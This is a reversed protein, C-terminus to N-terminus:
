DGFFYNGQYDQPYLSGTYFPGGIVASGNSHDYTYFPPTVSSPALALCQAQNQFTPEPGNGEYCPWGFNSTRTGHDVEEWTHEGVDGFFVEQTTPELAFGFPNRVGSFWVRSRWDNTGDYYPNDSPASGDTKIRLMKGNPSDLDQARLSLDNGDGGDGVGAYLTGDSSFHLSGLTHTGSDAPICDANTQYASCPPVGISGLIVTESGAQAVDPNSSSATVRVLRSTRPATSNPDGANEYTYTMYVYGNSAFNPDFALGWFGRDDYTNVKASLDIFPTAQLQGNKIVRVIGNKQWVFLRGDPAFALGV